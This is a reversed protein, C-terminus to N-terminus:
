LFPASDHVSSEQPFSSRCLVREGRGAVRAAIEPSSERSRAHGTIESGHTRSAAFSQCRNELSACLAPHRDRRPRRACGAGTAWRSRRRRQLVSRFCRTRSQNRAARWRFWRQRAAIVPVPPSATSSASAVPPPRPPPAIEGEGQLAARKGQKSPTRGRARPLLPDGPAEVGKRVAPTLSGAGRRRPQQLHPARSGVAGHASPPSSKKARERRHPIGPGCASGSVFIGPNQGWTVKAPAAVREDGGDGGRQAMVPAADVPGRLCQRWLEGGRTVPPPLLDHRQSERRDYDPADAGM